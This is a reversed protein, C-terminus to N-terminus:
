MGFVHKRSLFFNFLMGVGTGAIIGLIPHAYVVPVFMVLLSYTGRNFVLGVVCVAAFKAWQQAPPPPAAKRFTFTRNGFWTFTVAFPFSFLGAAVRSLGMAYIGAYLFATDICFGLAGVIGFKFFQRATARWETM